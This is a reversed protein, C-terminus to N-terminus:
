RSAQAGHMAAGNAVAQRLASEMDGEHFDLETLRTSYLIRGDTGVVFARSPWAAYAMEVAKDMGDVLAPFPLHLKRTCVAAHTKKETIDAAPAMNIDERTNRTSQWNANTHAERIYVLLFPAKSGYRRYLDKLADASARFNPCTYSGFVVVVPSKGRFDALSVTKGTAANPLAFGPAIENVKPGGSKASFAAELRAVAARERGADKPLNLTKYVSALEQHAEISNPMAKAATELLPRARQGDGARNFCEGLALMAEASQPRVRLAQQLVPTAAIFDKRVTLIQGLGLNAAYDNSNEALEKRFADSAGDADGTALLARGYLSQLQPLKPNLEIAGGLQKVAAPYDGSAFMRTGLLFRAEASDGNRLIRDLLVQGEGIRQTRILATGLMYAVALDASNPGDLPQLLDIVRQDDGKQLHCDALLMTVKRDQPDAKHLSEFRAEAEDLRGSKEYALALNLAIRPDGPLLKDAAEYETIAEDFRGLKVLVVGLNVHTAVQGPQLNLLARYTEAAAAYDGSQQLEVARQALAAPDNADTQARLLRGAFALVLIYLSIRIRSM